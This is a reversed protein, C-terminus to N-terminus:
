PTAETRLDGVAKTWYDEHAFPVDDVASEPLAGALMFLAMDALLDIDM